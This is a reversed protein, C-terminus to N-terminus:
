PGTRKKAEALALGLGANRGLSEMKGVVRNEVRWFRKTAETM